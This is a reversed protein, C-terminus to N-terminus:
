KRDEHRNSKDANEALLQVVGMVIEDQTIEAFDELRPYPNIWFLRLGDPTSIVGLEILDLGNTRSFSAVASEFRDANPPRDSDVNWIIKPGVVCVLQLDKWSEYVRVLQRPICNFGDSSGHQADDPILLPWPRSTLPSYVMQRCPNSGSALEQEDVNTIISDVPQLGCNLLESRWYIPSQNPNRWLSAPYRNVVRCDLSWTWGLLAAQVEQDVYAFDEPEWCGGIQGPRRVLVGEIQDGSTVTGDEWILRSTSNDSDLRWVFRCSEGMPNAISRVNFGKAALSSTVRKCFADEPGGLVLFMWRKGKGRGNYTKRLRVCYDPGRKRKPGHEDFDPLKLRELLQGNAVLPLDRNGLCYV